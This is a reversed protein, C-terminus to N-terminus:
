HPPCEEFSILWSRSRCILRLSLLRVVYIYIDDEGTARVDIFGMIKCTSVILIIRSLLYINVIVHAM